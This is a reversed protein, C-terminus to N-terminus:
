LKIGYIKNISPAYSASENSAQSSVVTFKTDTFTVVFKRYKYWYASLKMGTTLAEKVNFVASDYGGGVSQADITDGFTVCVFDYNSLNNTLTKEDTTPVFTNNNGYDYIKECTSVKIGYVAYISPNADLEGEAGNALIEFGDNYFKLQAYRGAWERYCGWSNETPIYILSNTINNQIDLVPFYHEDFVGNAGDKVCTLVVKIVDYDSIVHSDAFTYKTSTSAPSVMNGSTWLLEESYSGGGNGGMCRIYGM